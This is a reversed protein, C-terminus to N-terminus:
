VPAPLAGTAIPGASPDRALAGAEDDHAAVTAATGLAGARAREQDGEIVSVCFAYRAVGKVM